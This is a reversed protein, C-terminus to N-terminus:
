LMIPKERLFFGSPMPRPMLKTYIADARHATEAQAVVAASADRYDSPKTLISFNENKRLSALHRRGRANAALVTTYLPTEHLMEDSVGTVAFLAARRLRANTYKKTAALVLWETGNKAEAACRVLRDLVGGSGDAGAPLRDGLAAYVRFLYEAFADEPVPGKGDEAAQRLLELCGPALYPEASSLGDGTIVRRIAAAGVYGDGSTRKEAHWALGYKKCEGIYAIALNDNPSRFLSSPADPLLAAYAKERAAAEGTEPAADRLFAQFAPTKEIESAAALTEADGCESGFCLLNAGASVAVSVGGMAFYAASASSWPYPLELVLDAGGGLVAGARTYRDFLAPIGRQVFNGSMVAIVCGNEGAEARAARLIALHGRHLPNMECIVAVCKEKM